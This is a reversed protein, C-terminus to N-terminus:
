FFLFIWLYIGHVYEYHLNSSRQLIHYTDYGIRKLLRPNSLTKGESIPRCNAVRVSNGGM